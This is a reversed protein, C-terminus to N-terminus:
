NSVIDFHARRNKAWAEESHGPDMPREEGYSIASIRSASIGMNVLYQKASDARREGLALNYENTGREDCHGEILIKVSPYKKLFYSKETLIERAEPKLDYRDFDFHIDRNAFEYAEGRLQEEEALAAETPGTGATPEEQFGEPRETTVAEGPIGAEEKQVVKKACSATIGVLAIVLIYTLVSLSRNRPM